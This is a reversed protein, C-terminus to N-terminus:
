KCFTNYLAFTLLCLLLFGIIFYFWGVAYMSDIGEKGNTVKNRIKTSLKLPVEDDTTSNEIEIIAEVAGSLLKQYYFKDIVFIALWVFLLIFLVWSLFGWNVESATEGSFLGALTVLLSIGALARLRLQMLMENFHVAIKESELWVQYKSHDVM